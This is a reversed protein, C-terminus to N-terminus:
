AITRTTRLARRVVSNARLVLAGGTQAQLMRRADLLAAIGAADLGTVAWLDVVLRAHGRRVADRVLARLRPATAATLLGSLRLYALGDLAEATESTEPNEREDVEVARM